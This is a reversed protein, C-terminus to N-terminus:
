RKRRAFGIGMRGKRTVRGINRDHVEIEAFVFDAAIGAVNQELLDAAGPLRFELGGLHQDDAGPPQPRWQRQIQGGGADSRDPQHVVVADFDGIELALDGM